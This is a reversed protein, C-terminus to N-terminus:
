FTSNLDKAYDKFHKWYRKITAISFESIKEVKSQTIKGNIEFNWNELTEYIKTQTADKTVQGVERGTIEQKEKKTFEINPNFLIRREKNCYMELEDNERMQLINEIIKNVENDSLSKSMRGCLHYSLAVLLGKGCKPNLLAMSSLYSFVTSNRKGEKITNPMFPQCIKTKENGFVLYPTLENESTFYDSINDYKIGGYNSKKLITDNAVIGKKGEKLKTVLSVKKTEQYKYVKSNVNCYLWSDYSLVTQQIPKRAGTDTAIGIVESLQNYADAFNDKTLNDIKVLIGYGTNSLSKWKAYIYDSEPVTEVNDIDLYILGTPTTINSNKASDKILFNFRFTPLLNTKIYDYEKTGKGFQRAKEILPLYEYGNRITDFVVDISVTKIVKPKNIAEYQTIKYKPFVIPETSFIDKYDQSNYPKFSPNLNINTYTNPM